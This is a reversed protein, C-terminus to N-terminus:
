YDGQTVSGNVILAQIVNERPEAAFILYNPNLTTIKFDQKPTLLTGIRSTPDLFEFCFVINARLLADGDSQKVL